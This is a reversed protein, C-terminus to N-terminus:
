LAELEAKLAALKAREAEVVAAPAKETFGRNALKKEARDIESELEMRKRRQKEAAAELDVDDTPLIEIVGGPVPISGAPEGAGVGNSSIKLRGLRELQAVTEEYGEARLRAPLIASPKVEAADRWARIGQIASIAHTTRREADADIAVPGPSSRRQALLGAAGPIHSYIEETVFPILPHALTVTETLVHLLTAATDPDGDRLRPKVLELYWDCLEGYIFDYVALAARAFEFEDIACSVTERTQELRSVIWHDEPASPRLQARADPDISM